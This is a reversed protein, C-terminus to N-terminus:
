MLARQIQALLEDRGAASISSYPILEDKTLGLDRCLIVRQKALENRSLKDSKTAIVQVPLGHEKLWQFTRVDSDMPPHRMDILQCVLKLRPSRTLYEEIFKTWQRRMEQGKRAYGYGPLDVLFFDIRDQPMIKAALRYYNLTATKGPTASVRALGRRKALSNILSSKGVNSRGVFAIEPLDDKPYQEARVASAVYDAHVISFQLSM